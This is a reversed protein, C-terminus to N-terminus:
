KIGPYLTLWIEDYNDEDVGKMSFHAFFNDKGIESWATLNANIGIGTNSISLGTKKINFTARKSLRAFTAVIDSLVFPIIIYLKDINYYLHYLLLIFPLDVYQISGEYM